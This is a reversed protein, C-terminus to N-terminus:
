GCRVEKRQTLLRNARAESATGNAALAILPRYGATEFVENPAVMYRGKKFVYESIPIALLRKKCVEETDALANKGTRPKLFYTVIHILDSIALKFQQWIV